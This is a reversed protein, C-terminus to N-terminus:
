EGIGNQPVRVSDRRKSLQPVVYVSVYGIACVPLAAIVDVASHQKLFMTSVSILAATMAFATKWAPTKFRDCDWAAFMVAVSGIVHISPCVNTNTDFTYFWAMFRTFINDRAFSEPRLEQCNPFVLYVIISITYTVAIFGMMRRFAATDYLLTYIHIGVLFVFWFLYPIIFFECFPIHDDIFCHVHFYESRIGIREVFLFMFGFVPWFLLLKLHSFEPSNINSWRLKRYDTMKYKKRTMIVTEWLYIM